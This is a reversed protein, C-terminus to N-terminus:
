TGGLLGRRRDGWPKEKIYIEERNRDRKESQVM